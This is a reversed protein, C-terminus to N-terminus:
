RWPMAIQRATVHAFFTTNMSSGVAASPTTCVRLTRSWILRTRSCPRETTSILWLMGSTKSTASRISTSRSPARTARSLGSSTEISSTTEAMVPASVKWSLSSSRPIMVAGTVGGSSSAITSSAGSGSRLSGIQFRSTPPDLMEIARIRTPSITTKESSFNSSNKATEFARLM